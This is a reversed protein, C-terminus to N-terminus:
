KKRIEIVGRTDGTSTMNLNFQQRGNEDPQDGEGLQLGLRDLERKLEGTTLEVGIKLVHEDWPQYVHRLGGEGTIEIIREAM